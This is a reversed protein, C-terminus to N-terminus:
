IHNGNTAIFGCDDEIISLEQSISKLYNYWETYTKFCQGNLSKHPAACLCIDFPKNYKLSQRIIHETADCPELGVVLDFKDISTGIGNKDQEDCRFTKKIATIQLQKLAQNSLRINTDMATVKGGYQAILKSLACIRGAGVDLIRLNNLNEHKKILYKIFSTERPENEILKRQVLFDFVEDDITGCKNELYDQLSNLFKEKEKSNLLLPNEKLWLDAQNRIILKTLIKDM